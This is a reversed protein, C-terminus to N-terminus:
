SALELPEATAATPAVHRDPLVHTRWFADLEAVLRPERIVIALERREDLARASLALSGLVAVTDDVILLKGHRRLPRVDRRRATEVRIGSRQREDLLAVIEPDSLKADLLRVRRAAERVLAAFRERPGHTPGVILREQQAITFCAPRLAWDAAFLESLGSVVAADRSVLTFDCTRTFCRATCNFTTVVALQEDAVLYKAHYKMGGGHRRVEVGHRGLWAHLADLDRGAARAHATMLIRVHVGRRAAAALAGAVRPDDCRFISLVLRTRAAQIAAVITRRRLHPAIVLRERAGIM